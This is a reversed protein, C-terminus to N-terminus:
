YGAKPDVLNRLRRGSRFRALNDLFLAAARAPMRDTYGSVHPTLIVNPLSWLPHGAPLPEEDFVDLAAGGLRGESLAAVLAAEDVIPGRAINILWAGGPLARLEREGVMGRTEATLAAAIVLFDADGLLREWGPGVVIDRSPRGRRRVGVVRAGLARARVAIARGILGYGLIVVRAGALEDPRAAGRDWRGEAQAHLLPLLGRRAALMCMLVHEAM